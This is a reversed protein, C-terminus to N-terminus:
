PAPVGRWLDGTVGTGAVEAENQHTINADVKGAVGFNFQDTKAKIADILSDVTALATTLADVLGDITVLAAAIASQGADLTDFRPDVEGATATANDAASPVTQPAGAIEQAFALGMEMPTSELRGSAAPVWAEIVDGIALDAAEADSLVIGYRLPSLKVIDEDGDVAAAFNISIKPKIGAVTLDAPAYADTVVHTVGLTKQKLVTSDVVVRM